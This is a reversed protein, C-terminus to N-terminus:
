IPSAAIAQCVASMYSNSNSRDSISFSQDYYEACRMESSYLNGVVENRAKALRDPPAIRNFPSPDSQENTDWDVVTM